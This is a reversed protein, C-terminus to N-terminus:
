ILRKIILIELEPIDSKRVIIVKLKEAMVEAQRTINTETLLVASDADYYSKASVVEQIATTGVKGSWNKCQVAVKLGRKTAIIDAGADGSKPTDLAAWGNERFLAMCEDEYETGKQYNSKELGGISDNESATDIESILTDIISNSVLKAFVFLDKEESFIGLNLLLSSSYSNKEKDWLSTNAFGYSDSKVLLKKKEYLVHRHKLSHEIIVSIIEENVNVGGMERWNNLIFAAINFAFLEKM